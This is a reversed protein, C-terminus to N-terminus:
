EMYLLFGPQDYVVILPILTILAIVFTFCSVMLVESSLNDVIMAITIAGWGALWGVWMLALLVAFVCMVSAIAKLDAFFFGMVAAALTVGFLALYRQSQV